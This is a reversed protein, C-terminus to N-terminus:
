IEFAFGRLCAQFDCKKVCSEKSLGFSDRSQGRYTKSDLRACFLQKKKIFQIRASTVNSNPTKCDVTVKFFLYSSQHAPPIDEFLDFDFM